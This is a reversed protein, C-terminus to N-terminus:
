KKDLLHRLNPLVNIKCESFYLIPKRRDGCEIMRDINLLAQMQISGNGKFPTELLLTTLRHPIISGITFVNAM